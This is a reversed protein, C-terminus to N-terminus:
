IRINPFQNAGTGYGAIRQADVPADNGGSSGPLEDEDVVVAPKAAAAKLSKAQKARTAAKAKSQTKMYNAWGSWDVKAPDAVEALYPNPGQPKAGYPAKPAIGVGAALSAKDAPSLNDGSPAPPALAHPGAQAAGPTILALGLVAVSVTAISRRM